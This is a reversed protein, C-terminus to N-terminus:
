SRSASYPVISEIGCSGIAFRNVTDLAHAIDGTCLGTGGRETTQLAYGGGAIADCGPSLQVLYVRGASRFAITRGDIVTMDSFSTHPMCSVAAGASKGALLRDLAQQGEAGRRQPEDPATACSAAAVGLLLATLVRHM